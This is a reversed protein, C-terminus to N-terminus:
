IENQIYQVSYIQVNIKCDEEIKRERVGTAKSNLRLLRGNFEGMQKDKEHVPGLSEFVM